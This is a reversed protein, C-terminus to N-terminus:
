EMIVKLKKPESKEIKRFTAKIIGNKYAVQPERSEDVTEPVATRYFFLRSAKKYYQRQKDEEEEKAQGRIQLIGKDFTVEMDAPDIGPLAAEVYVNDGDESVSLGSVADRAALWNEDELPSPWSFLRSFRPLAPTIDLQM